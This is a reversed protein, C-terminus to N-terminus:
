KSCLSAIATASLVSNYIRADDVSGWFQAVGGIGTDIGMSTASANYTGTAQSM